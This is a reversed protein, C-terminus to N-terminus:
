RLFQLISSLNLDLLQLGVVGGQGGEVSGEFIEDPLELSFDDTKPLSQRGPVEPDVEGEDRLLAGVRAHSLEVWYREIVDVDAFGVVSLGNEESLEVVKNPVSQILDRRLM